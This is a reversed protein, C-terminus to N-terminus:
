QTDRGPPTASSYDQRDRRRERYASRRAAAHVTDRIWDAHRGHQLLTLFALAAKEHGGM